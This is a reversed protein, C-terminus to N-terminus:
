IWFPVELSTSSWYWTSLGTRNQWFVLPLNRYPEKAPAKNCLTKDCQRGGSGFIIPYEQFFLYLVSYVLALYLSTFLVIPEKLLMVVPRSFVVRRKEAHSLTFSTTSASHQGQGVQRENLVCQYTEPLLVVLPLGAGAIAAGVWFCLSWSVPSTYGSILPGSSPGMIAVAIFVALARGRQKPDDYIDAYLGGVVANPAAGVLGCLTRFLLLVGYRPSLACAITFLCYLIHSAILVPRRGLHESMPGFLLPGLTYGVLYLSNLLVLQSHKTISFHQAIEAVAGAPLSSGLNSNFVVILGVVVVLAKKAQWRRM